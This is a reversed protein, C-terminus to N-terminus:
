MLSKEIEAMFNYVLSWITYASAIIVTAMVLGILKKKLEAQEKSTAMMYKIAIVLVAVLLIIISATILIKALAGLETKTDEL